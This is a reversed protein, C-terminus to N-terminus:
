INLHPQDDKNQPMMFQYGMLYWLNNKRLVMLRIKINKKTISELNFNAFGAEIAGKTNIRAYSFDKIQATQYNIEYQAVMKLFDRDLERQFDHLKNEYEELSLSLIDSFVGGKEREPLLQTINKVNKDKLAKVFQEAINQPSINTDDECSVFICCFSLILLLRSIKLTNHYIKM